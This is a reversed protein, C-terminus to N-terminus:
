LIATLSNTCSSPRLAHLLMLLLAIAISHAIGAFYMHIHVHVCMFVCRGPYICAIYRHTHACTCALHLSDINQATVNKFFVIKEGKDYLLPSLIKKQRYVQRTHLTYEFHIKIKILTYLIVNDITDYVQAEIINLTM